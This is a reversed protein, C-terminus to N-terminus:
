VQQVYKHDQYKSDSHQSDAESGQREQNGSASPSSSLQRRQAQLAARQRKKLLRETEYANAKQWERESEQRQLQVHKTRCKVMIALICAVIFAGVLEVGLVGVVNVIVMQGLLGPCTERTKLFYEDTILISHVFSTIVAILAPIWLMSGCSIWCSTSFDEDDAAELRELRKEPTGCAAVTIFTGLAVGIHLCGQTLIYTTIVSCSERESRSVFAYLTVFNAVGLIFSFLIFPTIVATPIAWDSDEALPPLMQKSSVNNGPEDLKRESAYSSEM